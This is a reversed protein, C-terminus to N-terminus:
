AFHAVHLKSKRSVSIQKSEGGTVVTNDDMFVADFIRGGAKPALTCLKEAGTTSLEVQDNHVSLYAQGDPSWRLASSEPTRHRFM